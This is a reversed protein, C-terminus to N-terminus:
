EGEEEEASAVDGTIDEEGDESRLETEKNQERPRVRSM